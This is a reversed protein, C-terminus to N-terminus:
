PETKKPEVRWVRVGGEVTGVKYAVGPKEKLYRATYQRVTSDSADAKPVFFSDGIEMKAFPFRDLLTGTPAPIGKDIAYPKRAPQNLDTSETNETSM